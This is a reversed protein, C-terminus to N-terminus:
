ARERSHAPNTTALTTTTSSSLTVRWAIAEASRDAPKV